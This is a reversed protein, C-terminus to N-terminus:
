GGCLQDSQHGNARSGADRGANNTRGAFNLAALTHRAPQAINPHGDGGPAKGNSQSTSARGPSNSLGYSFLQNFSVLRVEIIIQALHDEEFKTRLIHSTFAFLIYGYWSRVKKEM